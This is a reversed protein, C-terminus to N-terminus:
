RGEPLQLSDRRRLGALWSPDLFALHGAIAVASFFYLRLTLGIGLHLAVAWALWFPRTSRKWIFFPYSIELTLTGYTLLNILWYHHALWTLLSLNSFEFGHLVIWVADGHWWEPGRLKALGSFFYVAAMQIQMLRTCATAWSSEEPLSRGRKSSLWRDLSLARGVPALALIFLLGTVLPDVGYATLPNRKLYSLHGLLVLWKAWRTGLGVALAGCSFLFLGHFFFWHAPESFYYFVSQKWPFLPDLKMLERPVLGGDGYLDLLSRTLGGYSLLLASGLLM